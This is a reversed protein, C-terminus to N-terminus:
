PGKKEEHAGDVMRFLADLGARNQAIVSDVAVPDMGHKIMLATLAEVYADYVEGAAEDPDIPKRASKELSKNLHKVFESELVGMAQDAVFQSVPKNFLKDLPILSVALGVGEEIWMEKKARADLGDKEAMKYIGQYLAVSGADRLMAEFLGGGPGMKKPDFKMRGLYALTPSRALLAQNERKIVLRPEDHQVLAGLFRHIHALEVDDPLMLGGKPLPLKGAVLNPREEDPRVGLQPPPPKMNPPRFEGEQLPVKQDRAWALAHLYAASEYFPLFKETVLAALAKDDKLAEHFPGKHGHKILNGWVQPALEPDPGNKDLARGLAYMASQRFPAANWVNQALLGKAYTEDALIRQLAVPNRVLGKM